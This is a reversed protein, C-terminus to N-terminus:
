PLGLIAQRKKPVTFLKQFVCAQYKEDDSDLYEMIAVTFPRATTHGPHMFVWGEWRRQMDVTEEPKFYKHKVTFFTAHEEGFCTMRDEIHRWAQVYAKGVAIMHEQFASFDIEGSLDLRLLLRPQRVVVFPLQFLHSENVVGTVLADSPISVAKIWSDMGPGHDVSLVVEPYDKAM